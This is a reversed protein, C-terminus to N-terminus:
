PNDTASHFSAIYRKVPCFVKVCLAAFFDAKEAKHHALTVDLIMKIVNQIKRAHNFTAFDVAPCFIVRERFVGFHKLLALRVVGAANQNVVLVANADRQSLSTQAM